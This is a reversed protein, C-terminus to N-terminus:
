ADDGGTAAGVNRRDPRQSRPWLKLSGCRSHKGTQGPSGNFARGILISQQADLWREIQEATIQCCTPSGQHPCRPCLDDKARPEPM